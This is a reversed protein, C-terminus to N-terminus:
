GEVFLHAGIAARVNGQGPSSRFGSRPGLRRPVRALVRNIFLRVAVAAQSEANREIATAPQVACDAGSAGGCAGATGTLLGTCFFTV